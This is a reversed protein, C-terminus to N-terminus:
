MVRKNENDSTRSTTKDAEAETSEGRAKIKATIEELDENRLRGQKRFREARLQLQEMITKHNTTKISGNICM